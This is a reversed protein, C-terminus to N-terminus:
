AASRMPERAGHSDLHEVDPPQGNRAPQDAGTLVHVLRHPEGHGREQDLGFGLPDEDVRPQVGLGDGAGVVEVPPLVGDPRERKRLLLADGVLDVQRRQRLDNEGVEVPIVDAPQPQDGFGDRDDDLADFPFGTVVILRGLPVEEQRGVVGAGIARDLDDVAVVVQETVTRHQQQECGAVGGAVLRDLDPVHDDGAVDDVVGGAEVVM